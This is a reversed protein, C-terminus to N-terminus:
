RMAGRVWDRVDRVADLFEDVDQRRMLGVEYRLETGWVTSVRLLARRVGPPIFRGTRVLSRQLMELDHRELRKFEQMRQRRGGLPTHVLIMAKLCIEVTYGGLYISEIRFAEKGQLYQAAELRQNAARLLKLVLRDNM